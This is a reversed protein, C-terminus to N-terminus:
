YRDANIIRGVIDTILQTALELQAAVRVSKEDRQALQAELQKIRGLRMEALEADSAATTTHIKCAAAEDLDVPTVRPNVPVGTLIALLEPDVDCMTMEFKIPKTCDYVKDDGVAPMHDVTFPGGFLARWDPVSEPGAAESCAWRENKILSREAKTHWWSM